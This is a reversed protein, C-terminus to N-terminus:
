SPTVSLPPASGAPALPELLELGGAALAGLAGGLSGVLSYRAFIATRDRDPALHAILTHELPLFVSVDGSSPNVTGVFAVVLLPWFADLGAFGLGTAAMLLAAALLGQRLRIRHGAYGLALTLLASGLLTATALLGVELAGYGLRALHVPLLLAVFGDAVSRLGRGVLIRTITARM